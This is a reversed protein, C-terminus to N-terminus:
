GLAQLMGAGPQCAKLRGPLRPKGGQAQRLMAQQRINAVMTTRFTVPTFTDPSSPMGCPALPRALGEPQVFLLGELGQWGCGCWLDLSDAQRRKHQLQLLQAYLLRLVKVKHVPPFKLKMM